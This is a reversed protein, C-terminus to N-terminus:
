GDLARWKQLIKRAAAIAADGQHTQAETEADWYYGGTVQALVAAAVCSVVEEAAQSTFCLSAEVDASSLIERPADTLDDSLYWEFGSEEGEWLAPRYCDDTRLDFPDLVLDFGHAKLATNWCEVTPLLSRKCFVKIASGVRIVALLSYVALPIARTKRPYAARFAAYGLCPAM